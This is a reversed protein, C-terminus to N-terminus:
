GKKIYRKHGGQSDIRIEFPLSKCNSELDIAFKRAARPSGLKHIVLDEDIYSNEEIELFVARLREDQFNAAWARSYSKTTEVAIKETSQIGVKQAESENRQPSSPPTARHVDFFEKLRLPEIVEAGDPHYFEIAVREATGGELRFIVETWDAGVKLIIQQHVLQGGQVQKCSVQIDQDEPDVVRLAFALTRDEFRLVQQRGERLRVQLRSYGLISPMSNAELFYQGLGSMEKGSYNLTLVPIVREQLSNGGHVFSQASPGKSRFTSADRPFVLFRSGGDYALSSTSVSTMGDRSVMADSQIFRRNNSTELSERGEDLLLFGHDSTIVFQNVGANRLLAIASYLQALWTEFTAVGLDSEGSHDIERSQIVVLPSKSVKTKLDSPSLQQVDKLTLGVPSRRGDLSRDGMARLRKKPSDVVYEGTRIGAFAGSITLHGDRSVPALVNMGVDTVSPLEAFRPRLSLELGSRELRESLEVAMEYRLADVTFYATVLKKRQTFPHVVQEYINRQQLEPDPLFGCQVCLDTFQGNLEDVWRHYETRLVATARSLGEYHVLGPELWRMRDQEFLRHALDVRHAKEAYREAADNLSKAGKLASHNDVLHCGLNASVRVLQWEQRRLPDSELWVSKERLRLEAWDRAKKWEAREIAAVAAELLRSDERSFTDIKGLEEPTGSVLDEEILLETDNAIRRYDDPFQKRVPEVLRLCVQKLPSPEKFKPLIDLTPKRDLDHVYEACLLWGIWADTLTKASVSRWGLYAMIFDATIGCHREMYAQLAGCEENSIVPGLNSLLSHLLVEPKMSALQAELGGLKQALFSNLWDEAKEFSLPEEALFREVEAPAVHGVSVEKVLTALNKHYRTGAKCAELLPTERISSDTHGPVHLLLPESDLGDMYQEQELLLELFSGRLRLVPGFFEGRARREALSDVFNSYLGDKDLWVVMGKRMQNVVQRELNEALLQM